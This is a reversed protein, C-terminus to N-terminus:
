ISFYWFLSFDLPVLNINLGLLSKHNIQTAIGFYATPFWKDDDKEIYYDGDDGLIQYSDYRKYYGVTSGLGGGVFLLNKPNLSIVKGGVFWYSNTLEGKDEDDDFLSPSFDYTNDENQGSLYANSGFQFFLNNITNYGGLSFSINGDSTGIGM